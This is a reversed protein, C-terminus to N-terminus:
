KDKKAEPAKTLEIDLCTDIPVWYPIRMKAFKRRRKSKNMSREISHQLDGALKRELWPAMKKVSLKLKDVKTSFKFGIGKKHLEPILTITGSLEQVDATIRAKLAGDQVKYRLQGSAKINLKIPSTENVPLPKITRVRLANFRIRQTLTYTGLFYDDEDRWDEALEVILLSNLEDFPYRFMIIPYEGAKENCSITIPVIHDSAKEPVWDGYIVVGNRILGPPIASLMPNIDKLMSKLRLPTISIRVGREPVIPIDEMVLKSITFGGDIKLPLLLPAGRRLIWGGVIGMQWMTIFCALWITVLIWLRIKHARRSIKDQNKNHLKIRL